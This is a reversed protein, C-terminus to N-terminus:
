DFFRMDNRHELLVAPINRSGGLDQLDVPDRQVVFDLFVAQLFRTSSLVGPTAEAMLM